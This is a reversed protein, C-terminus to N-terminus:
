WTVNPRVLLSSLILKVANYEDDSFVWKGMQLFWRFNGTFWKVNSPRNLRVDCLWFTMYKQTCTNWMGSLYLLISNLEFFSMKEM